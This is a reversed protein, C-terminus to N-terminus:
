ATKLKVRRHELLVIYDLYFPILTPANNLLAQREDIGPPAGHGRDNREFRLYHLATDDTIVGNEGAWKIMLYLKQLDKSTVPIVGERQIEQMFRKLTFEFIKGLQFLALDISEINALSLARNIETALKEDDVRSVLETYKETSEQLKCVMQNSDNKEKEIDDMEEIASYVSAPPCHTESSVLNRITVLELKKEPQDELIKRVTNQILERVPIDKTLIELKTLRSQYKPEFIASKRKRKGDLEDIIKVAPSRIISSYISQPSSSSELTSIEQSLDSVFMKNTESGLFVLEIYECLKAKSFVRETSSPRTSAVSTMGWDSLAFLDTGVRVFRRDYSLYSTIATEKVPRRAIVFVYIAQSSLPEGVAHLSDEM